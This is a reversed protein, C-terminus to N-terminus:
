SLNEQIECCCLTISLSLLAISKNRPISIQDDLACTPDSHEESGSVTCINKDKKLYQWEIQGDLQVVEVAVGEPNSKSYRISIM